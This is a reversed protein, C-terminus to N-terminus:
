NEQEVNPERAFLACMIVVSQIISYITVPYDNLIERQHGLLPIVGGVQDPEQLFEFAFVMDFNYQLRAARKRVLRSVQDRSHEIDNLVLPYFRGDEIDGKGAM